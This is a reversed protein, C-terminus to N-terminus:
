TSSPAPSSSPLTASPSSTSLAALLDTWNGLFTEAGVKDLAAVAADVILGCEVAGLLTIGKAALQAQLAAVAAARSNADTGGHGVDVLIDFVCAVASQYAAISAGLFKQALFGILAGLYKQFVSSM